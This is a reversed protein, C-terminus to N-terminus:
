DRGLHEFECFKREREVRAKTMPHLPAALPGIVIASSFCNPLRECDWRKRPGGLM